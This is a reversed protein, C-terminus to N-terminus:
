FLGNLYVKVLNSPAINAATIKIAVGGSCATPEIHYLNAEVPSIDFPILTGGPLEVAFSITVGTPDTPASTVGDVVEWFIQFGNCSLPTQIRGVSNASTLILPATNM